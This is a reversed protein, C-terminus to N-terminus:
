RTYGYRTRWDSEWAYKEGHVRTDPMPLPWFRDVLWGFSHKAQPWEDNAWYQTVRRLGRLAYKWQIHYGRTGRMHAYTVRKDVLVRGDSLWTKCSLEQPEGSWPGFTADDMPGIREWLARSMAWMSGSITMTEDVPVDMRATTRSAWRCDRMYGQGSTWPSSMYWYDCPTADGRTWDTNLENRRAIVLNSRECSESLYSDYGESIDCHSDIKMLVDGQALSVGLNIAARMGQAEPIRVVRLRYNEAPLEHETPGDVMALIEVVGWAGSSLQEITRNLHPDNRSPIIVSLM